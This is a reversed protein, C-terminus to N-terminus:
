GSFEIKMIKEATFLNYTTNVINWHNKFEKAWSRKFFSLYPIFVFKSPSIAINEMGSESYFEYSYTINSFGLLSLSMINYNYNCLNM